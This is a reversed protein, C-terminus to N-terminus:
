SNLYYRNTEHRQKFFSATPYPNRANDIVQMIEDCSICPSTSNIIYNALTKIIRWHNDKELFEYAELFLQEIIENQQNLTHVFCQIYENVIKLDSDGGYAGLSQLKVLHRNMPEDDRDAVYKAEAIPGILINIIDAKYAAIYALQDANSLHEISYPLHEILRGGVLKALYSETHLLNIFSFQIIQFFVPPLQFQKNRLYIAVARGAEHYAIQRLLEEQTDPNVDAISYNRKM